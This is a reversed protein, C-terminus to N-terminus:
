GDNVPKLIEMEDTNFGLTIKKLSWSFFLIM